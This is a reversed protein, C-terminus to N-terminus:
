GARETVWRVMAIIRVTRRNPGSGYDRIWYGERTDYYAVTEGDVKLKNDIMGFSHGDLRETDTNTYIIDM